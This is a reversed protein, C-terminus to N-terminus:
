FLVVDFGCVFLTQTIPVLTRFCPKRLDRNMKRSCITAIQIFNFFGGAYLNM